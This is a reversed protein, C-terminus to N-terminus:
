KIQLDPWILSKKLNYNFTNINNCKKTFEPLQNWKSPGLFSLSNQGTTKCFRHKLKLYDNRLTRNSAAAWQFVENLYNPGHGQCIQLHDFSYM